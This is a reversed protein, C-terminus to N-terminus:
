YVQAMPRRFRNSALASWTVQPKEGPQHLERPNIYIQATEAREHGLWLAIVTIDTGAHLLAM